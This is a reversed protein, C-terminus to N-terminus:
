PTRRVATRFTISRTLLLRFRPLARRKKFVGFYYIATVYLVAFKRALLFFCVACSFVLTGCILIVTLDENTQSKAFSPLVTTTLISAATAAFGKAATMNREAYTKALEKLAEEPKDIDSVAIEAVHRLLLTDMFSVGLWRVPVTSELGAIV